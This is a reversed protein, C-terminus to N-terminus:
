TNSISALKTIKEKFSSNRHSVPYPELIRPESSFYEANADGFLELIYSRNHELSWSSCKHRFVSETMIDKQSQPARQGRKSRPARDKDSYSELGQKSNDGILTKLNSFNCSPGEYNKLAVALIGFPSPFVTSFTCLEGTFRTIGEKQCIYEAEKFLKGLGYM